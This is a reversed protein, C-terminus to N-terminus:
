RPQPVCYTLGDLDDAIVYEVAAAVDIQRDLTFTTRVAILQGPLGQAVEVPDEEQEEGLRGRLQVDQRGTGRLVVFAIAQGPQAILDEGFRHRVTGATARVQVLGQLNEEVHDVLAM